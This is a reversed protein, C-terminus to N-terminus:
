YKIMWILGNPLNGERLDKFFAPSKEFMIYNTILDDFQKNELIEAAIKKRKQYSIEKQKSIPIKSVQSSILKIRNIHFSAGLNINVKSNGYWSLEILQGELNLHNICYQLGSETATTHYVIDYSKGEGDDVKFGLQEAKQLRWNNKEIITPMKNFKLKLTLALLSGINGFGCIAVKLDPKYFNSDWVANLVTEINSILPVKNPAVKNDIKFLHKNNIACINQHPHMYHYYNGAADAGCVAYGYKVPFKFSGGMYPVQMSMNLLTPVKGSAVLRETGTSILSYKSQIIKQNANPKVEESKIESNLENIHWLAKAIM